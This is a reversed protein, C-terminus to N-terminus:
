VIKGYFLKYRLYEELCQIAHDDVRPDFKNAFFHHHQVLWHLDGTGYVCVERRHKGNCVPYPAGHKMDGELSQWKVLRALANLDSTDYKSHSPVSGPMEPLRQLTAWLYEDPSYTDKTWEMFAIAIYNEFLSKVFDRTLVVYANGTFIPINFPPTMKKINSRVIGNNNEYHYEWRSKKFSPPKESEMNNKGNLLKLANVIEANTKLPFDAGCTNILYKWDVSSNLLDEMCNLDAQVRSWSAYVVSERKSSLFVNPFCSTIAKVAKFFTDSSKMDVHICYVNQPMYISRLLREFMEIDDHIVMSYAIPYNREEDSLSFMVYKKLKKFHTCDETEELYDRETALVRRKTVILNHIVTKRVEDPDGSIIRSCNKRGSAILKLDQYDLSRCYESRLDGNLNNYVLNCDQSMYTAVMTLFFVISGFILGLKPNLRRWLKRQLINLM